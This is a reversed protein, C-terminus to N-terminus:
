GNIILYIPQRPYFGKPPLRGAQARRGLWPDLVTETRLRQGNRWTLGEDFKFTKADALGGKAYRQLVVGRGRTMVPLEDLKFMLLRRTKGLVAVTDDNEGVTVCAQAEEGAALNLVQKGNRTQAIVGDEAVLFGRGADSAVLLRRGPEHLFLAVADHGNGLEIM